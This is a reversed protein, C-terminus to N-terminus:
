VSKDPKFTNHRSIGSAESSLGQVLSLHERHDFIWAKVTMQVLNKLLLRIVLASGDVPRVDEYM